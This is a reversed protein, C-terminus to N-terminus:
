LVIAQDLGLVRILYDIIERQHNRRQFFLLVPNCVAAIILWWYFFVTEVEEKTYFFTLYLFVGTTVVTSFVVNVIPSQDMRIEVRLCTESYKTLVVEDVQGKKEFLSVEPVGVLGKKEVRWSFPRDMPVRDMFGCIDSLSYNEGDRFEFYRVVPKLM